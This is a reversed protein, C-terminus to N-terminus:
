SRTASCPAIMAFALFAAILGESDYLCTRTLGRSLAMGAM